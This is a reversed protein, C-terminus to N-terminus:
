ASLSCLQHFCRQLPCELRQKPTMVSLEAADEGNSPTGILDTHLTPPFKLIGPFRHLERPRANSVVSIRGEVTHVLSFCGRKSGKAWADCRWYKVHSSDQESM